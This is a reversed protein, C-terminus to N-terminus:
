SLMEFLEKNHYWFEDIALLKPKFFSILLPWNEKRYINVANIESKIRSVTKGHENFTDRQWEWGSDSNGPDLENKLSIFVDFFQHRLQEDEHIIEIAIWANQHDANMRFSIFRVGTKYNIWNVKEGSASPVPRLYQGFSTWFQQRLLAAEQKSYM